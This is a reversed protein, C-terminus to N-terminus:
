YGNINKVLLVIENKDKYLVVDVPQNYQSHKTANDLLIEILEKIDHEDCKFLIDPTINNNIRTEKEIAKGEFTLSALEICKSINILDYEKIKPQETSALELLKTILHNM